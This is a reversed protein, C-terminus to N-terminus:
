GVERSGGEMGFSSVWSTATKVRSIGGEETSVRTKMAHLSFKGRLKVACHMLPASKARALLVGILITIQGLQSEMARSPYNGIAESRM